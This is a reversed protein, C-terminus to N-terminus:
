QKMTTSSEFVIGRDTMRIVLAGTDYMEGFQKIVDTPPLEQDMGEIASLREMMTTMLNSYGEFNITYAMIAGDPEHSALAAPLNDQQGEGVSLGIAEDGLAIYADLDPVNPILGAPLKKPEGNAEVGMAALEPSFMQAMGLLMQPNRVFLAFNGAADAVQGDEGIVLDDINVRFGHVNTVVPPIPQNLARQWDQANQAIDTFLACGPPVAVWGGVLDRAFDRAAVLNFAMGASMTRTEGGSLGVPTDAIAVLQQALESNTEIVMEMDIQTTDLATLGFSARPFHDFLLDIEARCATDNSFESMELIERAPASMPDASDMLQNFFAQFDLFGSGNATYSHAQNFEVLQAPDFTVSPQDINAVRRLIAENDPVMALTVFREDFHLAAGFGDKAMWLIEQDGIRRTPLGTESEAAVRDLMAQFADRDALEAHLVPYVSIMHVAWFGNSSLGLEEVAERSDITSLEGLIAALLPSDTQAEEAMETYPTQNLKAMATIPAWIQDVVAEPTRALNAGVMATSADIREFLPNGGDATSLAGSGPAAEDASDDGGCATLMLSVLGALLLIRITM